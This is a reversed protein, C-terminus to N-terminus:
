YPVSRVVKDGSSDLEVALLLISAPSVSNFVFHVDAFECSIFRSLKSKFPDSSAVMRVYMSFMDYVARSDGKAVVLAARRAM